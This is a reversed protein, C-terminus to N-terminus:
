AESAKVILFLPVVSKRSDLCGKWFDSVSKRQKLKQVSNKKNKYTATVNKHKQINKRPIIYNSHQANEVTINADALKGCEEWRWFPTKWVRSCGSKLHLAKTYKQKKTKPPLALGEGSGLRRREFFPILVAFRFIGDERGGCFVLGASRM